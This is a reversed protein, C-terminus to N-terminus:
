KMLEGQPAKGNPPATGHLKVLVFSAMANIQEPTMSKEWAVMGKAPVGKTIVKVVQAIKNGHIWYDDTLNPGIGGEGARGHCAACQADFFNKADALLTADTIPETITPVDAQAPAAGAPLAGGAAVYAEFIDPFSERLSAIQAADANRMAQLMDKRFAAYAEARQVAQMRPTVDLDEASVPTRYSSFLVGKSEPRAPVYEPDVDRLYETTQLDGTGFVHFHLLYVVGMVITIYFLNKWWGPLDNDFESIGDYEHNLLEDQDKKKAM